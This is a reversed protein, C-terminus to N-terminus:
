GVGICLVLDLIILHKIRAFVGASGLPICVAPSVSLSASVPDLVLPAILRVTAAVIPMTLTITISVSLSLTM